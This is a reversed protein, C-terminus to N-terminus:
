RYPEHSKLRGIHYGLELELPSDTNLGASMLEGVRDRVGPWTLANLFEKQTAALDEKAATKTREGIIRKATAIAAVDFGAIRAALNDVFGDLEIDPLSRNIWGYLAATDADFDDGGIIIEMARGRGTLLPLRELGGGGPFFGCGIEIQAFVAKERSAFRMDLSQIFESGVGRARGRVSAITVFPARELRYAIDPWPSLGTPGPDLNLNGIESLDIHAMYYNEVESDFVVVKVETDKELEDLLMRLESIMQQSFLNLPPNAFTVKVYASGKKQIKLLM